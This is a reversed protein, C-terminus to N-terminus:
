DFPIIFGPEVSRYLRIPRGARKQQAVEELIGADIFTKVRYHMTNISCGVLQAAQSISSTRGLFPEFYRLSEPNTLIRAAKEDRLKHWRDPGQSCQEVQDIVM